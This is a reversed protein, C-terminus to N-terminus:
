AAKSQTQREALVQNLDLYKDTVTAYPKNRAMYYQWDDSSFVFGYEQPNFPLNDAQCKNYAKYALKALELNEAEAQEAERKPREIRETQMAHLTAIDRAHQNRIRRQLLHLNRLRDEYISGIKAHVLAARRIPDAVDKFLDPHELRGLDYIAEIEVGVKLMRWSNEAILHVLENEADGYPAHREVHSAVLGAYDSADDEPMLALKATLGHRLANMSSAKRGAPTTAGHALKANARNAALQAESIPSGASETKGTQAAANEKAQREVADRPNLPSTQDLKM